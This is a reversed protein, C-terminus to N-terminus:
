AGEASLTTKAVALSEEDASTLRPYHLDMGQITTSIIDAVVARMAWKRDAPIVYWPAADTSTAAIAEEYASQYKDWLRREALDAKSFKWHKTPDDIRDLFRRRQEDKSVNLFFKLIKTGRDHCGAM